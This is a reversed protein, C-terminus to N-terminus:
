VLFVDYPVPMGSASLGRLNKLNPGGVSKEACNKGTKHMSPASAPAKADDAKERDPFVGGVSPM